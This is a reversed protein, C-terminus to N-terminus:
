AWHLTGAVTDFLRVMQDALPDVPTSFNLMLWRETAPIPVYYTVATTPLSNGLQNVPDPASRRRLRVAEGAAEMHTIGLEVEDGSIRGALHDLLEEPDSCKPWEDASPVSVLLSSALPVPGATLLSLYLETGGIGYASKAKKQLDRMLQEKLHPANDVGKFQLDILAVISRDREAPDLAIQFWGDPVFLNYDAPPATFDDAKKMRDEDNM